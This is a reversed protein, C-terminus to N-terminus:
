FIIQFFFVDVKKITEAFPGEGNKASFWACIYNTEVHLTENACVAQDHRITGVMKRCLLDFMARQELKAKDESELFRKFKREFDGNWELQNM